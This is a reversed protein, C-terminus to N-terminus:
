AMFCYMRLDSIDFLFAAYEPIRIKTSNYHSSVSLFTGSLLTWTTWMPGFQTRDAGPPGWTPGMFRTILPVTIFVGATGALRHVEDNLLCLHICVNNYVHGEGRLEMSKMSLEFISKESLTKKKNQITRCQWMRNLLPWRNMDGYTAHM